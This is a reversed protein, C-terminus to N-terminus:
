GEDEDCYGENETPIGQFKTTKLKDIHSSSEALASHPMIQLTLTLTMTSLLAVVM